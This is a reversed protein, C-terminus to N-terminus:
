HALLSYRARVAPAIEGEAGLPLPEEALLAEFRRLPAPLAPLRLLLLAAVVPAVSASPLRASTLSSSSGSMMSCRFTPRRRRRTLVGSALRGSGAGSIFATSSPM